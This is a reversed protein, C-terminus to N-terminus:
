CFGIALRPVGHPVNIQEKEKVTRKAEDIVQTQEGITAIFQKALSRLAEENMSQLDHETIMFRIIVCPM